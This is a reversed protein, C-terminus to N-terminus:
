YFFLLKFPKTLLIHVHNSMICYAHIDFYKIDRYHLAEKVVEAISQIKLWTSGYLCKDLYSDFKAFYRKQLNYLEVKRTTEDLITKRITIEAANRDNILKERVEKPLSDYLRFTIFLREDPPLIHPLNRRYHTKM